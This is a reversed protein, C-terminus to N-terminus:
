TSGERNRLALNENCHTLDLHHKPDKWTAFFLKNTGQLTEERSHSTLLPGQSTEPSPSPPARQSALSTICSGMRESEKWVFDLTCGSPMWVQVALALSALLGLGSLPM